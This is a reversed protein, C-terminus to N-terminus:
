SNKHAAAPDHRGMISRRNGLPRYHDGPVPDLRDTGVMFQRGPIGPGLFDAPLIEQQDGAQDVAMPVSFPQGIELAARQSSVRSDQIRPM